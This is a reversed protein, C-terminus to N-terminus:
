RARLEIFHEIHDDTLPITEETLNQGDLSLENADTGDAALRSITIHYVTQGHRYHIKYNTWSAPFHPIVRLRNGELHVGLLTETLFRYMWGASGTYWTWGGRGIHPAVAYVDAAIVYPEVKYIAIQEATAGHQMPNLLAFLEWARENERMLAFAMAAWIAGHTYQGGNERVGPIYGKIYGPELASKDFPPAFLEMLKADRRVLRENVAHMARRSRASEGAGSIVSWSQSISDIQCESNTKSGLAEGNDFYARLYWQGDWAHEEINEQLQKAEALCREAFAADKRARALEAFQRLVDYLFFALWVSEGRGEKGVLNMGDNWDGSGMLPLGHEGFKLGHEIARVCHEYLTASEQSRNPLDYYSEEEPMVPRAELFPIQEDLVGTDAVCSVYRCTVYPLWLYDDSFHTRVGRGAPPHWWHQVDGERFQHAAARLLHERILAPEAHVLAMVDQLQDRFGYAGGSQYFGTRGWLRCGLTQYLLWGNAMTNVAPDPTDVNVTGLTHNWFEHVADLAARSADARRFRFILDHVEAISRGAGLRFTTEREEGDALDFAIQMAGCPDLGAGAKGSLRARKLAAPQVLTGNRGLFEKRDGTLTRTPESVDLFVIRDPFETNYFNRALLAGSKLDVDTQVNLLTKHRLDGLVWECYGTVSLRRPGGSINRLKCVALKVPVDMAVYIWLESVIGNETHEFVTYGFGHRIIYPTVGRAPWPTPSWVQGTEEDRIYLAEGSMDQVPDNHWPTLRFEHANEAWTYAGGSESVVTGFSPNAMVNVWPAPTVQGPSLTIVYEHGDPTFGGLGNHFILDRRPPPSPTEIRPARSANFAPVPPELVSRHELQELLSGHEDDLVIRAASQLLVRDDNPIQELRRVFIGGPKDLMQAESGASVLSTIQDQLNQRYVSVDENLIVLEVTLGKARWYSHARILQRVLEIKEMDTVRLLVLPTDGSIGYAWLASQGRRNELLIGSIARRAPDAYIIAGALRAYLQAEAETANLQRLIVQSHTWVLDRARDAMRFHQYKEVLANATERNEAAGIVFDLVAIEDPQLTVHRRLSIIPDLVSGATNSLPAVKQMAAPNALNGDRGVFRARDTECSTEGHTGGQGVLLHLLWPPKEDPTRARRTCLIASSDPVFETQVFLNSFIPHVEDAAQTALVVEAYSTLEITRETSSHNTLTVRRLEIDDEPSVSLETHIELTGHRQRFEARAQTFIAEYNKTARLTPQHAASWFEGTAVDRLYLFAGWCDCTADERWRTIALDQWRSYGGGANSIAVHYRGNSLLHIEPTRSTPSKFVRMVDEGEGFRPRTEELELDEPLVSAETKPLRVQLLLDATKLLPRSMFRRQMPLDRLSSVLALLSMGQHHAMYSRVTASSEDPPLRSPTYDVAEYFGFDGERGDRALRQLNESAERPAVMLALVTAYPAIVLDEALGRKLGLGPVGFARYQYTQKVDGQNFGSESVGWPVGRSNGYEIQLEVATKCARDLLTGRYSPMVLLPMLYEFMSGSWSVLIPEGSPAVLLRGLAFWHDQPVQGEAIALYSCLRAESALLDYFSLDRRGETVNFGVAFLNRAKDFLFSFDMGALEDCQGALTELARMRERARKSAEGLIESGTPFQGDLQDFSAIERLSPAAHLQAIRSTLNEDKLWPAHFNLEDLHEVCSRQLTQAWAKLDGDRNALANSIKASQEVARQLLTAAARLDSPTKALEADLQSLLADEGTLGQVLALTDRLGAFIQPDLIKEEALGRLGSALTLLHGALNGSDVSSVYLPILPRLTRTEYWNYFHGRHRELRHLTDITAQTRELLRGLSLYGLDRAALTALLSLGINTPSTRAAVTPAPEEQFNDPPLWNEEATVFTEFFHWTKRAIRRLLTLQEVSLEPTPQEIPLSIWWAIWPAALWLVFFPVTVMRHAPQMVGLSVASAFAIAPAFWMAAYSAALDTRASRAVEGSTVWELLYRRTIFVRRLTRGIATLSLFADNPLFALSLGIQGLTRKASALMGRLHMRWPLQEPKRVLEAVLSLLGPLAIVVLLVCTALLGLRPVFLWSSLFFLVLAIPVLSRRLNDFIKWCSLASIPNRIGRGKADPVRPLLWPLIQWDGRIWRHRRVADIEYRSPYEEYLTVDSVLGCRAYVSELLDHSLIRNEPFRGALARQFADVDYVGKGIFSGEGFLDQYVDSVTRTYPDIGVDGAHLRVFRSRDATPLSVDVRPQLLGYGETVIGRAPDFQPRNLPHAMTGILQRASERPLQTDTDLTIVYKIERLISQDGVVAAFCEACRGRLFANFQMLKGRKREYGMWLNESANWRRPRHFLFFFDRRGGAYKRNLSEIGAKARELLPADEPLNEEAADPWDTLLALHLHPDRNALHHIELTQLLDDINEASRLITPVVVMGRSEPAIGGPSYGLRPLLQPNLLLTALWNWLAVALQSVGLSFTIGCLGLRWGAVGRAEAAHVFGLTALLTFLFIGGVYFTFPVKRIGREVFGKWRWRAGSARELRPLGKDILYFGVHATRDERGKQQAREQALEVAKRAVEIESLASHRALIEVVHRYRDRTAFDMDGYVDAPEGRLTQEVLSLTEVFEKWDIASLLRLSSISHSVSVQDSAQSQNEQHVLQEVSLGQELTRQELWGRALHLAPNLRSLRQCFEAVFSSSLTPEARAMDAVVIVIRSPNKEAMAQLREVWQNALNRDLRGQALGTTIRALNEILGLRLMIPVAWLEGLKLPAVTQYAAVFATLSDADIQADVHAILELVIDYVRLFGASPGNALRPLERSYQEPLHRRALQIQEEILYFNDLLWEAAPTVRRSQDVALTARNFARLVKENQDLRMLLRASTHGGVIKHQAAISQAHHALQEVGFLEARLPLERVLQRRVRPRTLSIKPRPSRTLM